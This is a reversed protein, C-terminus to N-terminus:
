ESEVCYIDSGSFAFSGQTVTAVCLSSAAQVYIGKPFALALGWGAQQPQTIRRLYNAALVPQAAWSVTASVTSAPTGAEEALFSMKGIPVGVTTSRVIGYGITGGSTQTTIGLEIVRINALSSTYMEWIANGAQPWAQTHLGLSYLAM